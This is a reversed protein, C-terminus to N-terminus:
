LTKLFTIRRKHPEVFIKKDLLGKRRRFQGPILFGGFTVQVYGAFALLRLNHKMERVHREDFYADPTQGSLPIADFATRPM